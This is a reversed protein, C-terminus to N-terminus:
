TKATQNGGEGLAQKELSSLDDFSSSKESQPTGPDERPTPINGFFYRQTFM